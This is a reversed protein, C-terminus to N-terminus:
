HHIWLKKTIFAIILFLVSILDLLNYALAILIFQFLNFDGFTMVVILQILLSFVLVHISISEFKVKMQTRKNQFWFKVQKNDLGLKRSLDARQKEDPHPCEKIFSFDIL